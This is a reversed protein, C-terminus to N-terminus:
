YDYVDYSFTEAEEEGEELRDFFESYIFEDRMGNKNLPTIPFTVIDYVGSVARAFTYACGVFVGGVYGSIQEMSTQGEIAQDAMQNPIELPSTILNTTGRSIKRSVKDGYSSGKEVYNPKQQKVSCGPAALLALALAVAALSATKM